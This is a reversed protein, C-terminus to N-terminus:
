TVEFTAAMGEEFHSEVKGDEDKTLNCFVVYSGAALEFAGKAARLPPSPSSRASSPEQRCPTKTPGPRRRHDARGAVGGTGRGTRAARSGDKRVDFTVDGAPASPPEPAVTLEVLTVAM